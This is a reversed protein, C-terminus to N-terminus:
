VLQRKNELNSVRRVLAEFEEVDVKRKLLGKMIEIDSKVVDMDESLKLVIPKLEMLDSVQEHTIHVESQIDELILEFRQKKDGLMKPTSSRKKM